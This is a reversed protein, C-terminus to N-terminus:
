MSTHKREMQTKGGRGENDKGWSLAFLFDAAQLDTWGERETGAERRGQCKPRSSESVSLPLGIYDEWSFVLLRVKQRFWSFTSYLLFTTHKHTTTWRVHKLWVKDTVTNIPWLSPLKLVKDIIELKFRKMLSATIYRGKEKITSQIKPIPM